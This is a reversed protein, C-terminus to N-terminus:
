LICVGVQQTQVPAERVLTYEIDGVINSRVVDLYVLLTQSPTGVVEDFVPSLNVFQWEAQM